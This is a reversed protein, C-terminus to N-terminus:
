IMWRVVSKILIDLLLAIAVLGALWGVPATAARIREMGGRQMGLPLRLMGERLRIM